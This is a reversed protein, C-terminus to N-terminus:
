EGGRKRRGEKMELQLVLEEPKRYLPERSPARLSYEAGKLGQACARCVAKGQKEVQATSRCDRHFFCPQAFAPLALDGPFYADDEDCHQHHGSAHRMSEGVPPRATESHTRSRGLAATKYPRGPRDGKKESGRADTGMDGAIGVVARRGAGNPALMGRAPAPGGRDEAVAAKRKKRWEHM